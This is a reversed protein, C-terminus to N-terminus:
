ALGGREQAAALVATPSARGEGMGLKSALAEEKARLAERAGRPSRRTGAQGVAAGSTAAKEDDTTEAARVVTTTARGETVGLKSALAKEQARLQALAAAKSAAPSLSQRM